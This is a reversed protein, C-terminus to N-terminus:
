PEVEYDVIDGNQSSAEGRQDMSDDEDDIAQVEVSAERHGAAPAESSIDDKGEEVDEMADSRNETGNAKEEENMESEARAKKQKEVVEDLESKASEEQNQLQAAQAESLKAPRYLLQPEIATKIYRSLHLRHKANALALKQAIEEKSRRKKEQQREIHEEKDKAISEALEKRERELKEKLKNDIEARQKEASSKTSTDTKFKNLTGMLVGFMRKGRRQGDQTMELRPRKQPGDTNQGNTETQEESERKRQSTAEASAPVVISSNVITQKAQELDPSPDAM